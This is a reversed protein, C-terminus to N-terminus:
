RSGSDAMWESLKHPLQEVFASRPLVIDCSAFARAWALTHHYNTDVLTGDVDLIAALEPVILTM